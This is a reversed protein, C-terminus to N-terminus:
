IDIVKKPDTIGYEALNITKLEDAPINKAEFAIHWTCPKGAIHKIIDTTDIDYTKALNNVCYELPAKGMRYEKARHEWIIYAERQELEVRTSCPYREILSIEPILPNEDEFISVSRCGMKQKKGNKFCKYHFKHFSFRVDITVCATSGIYVRGTKKSEIKYIKGMRYDFEDDQRFKM